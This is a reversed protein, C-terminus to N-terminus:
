FDNMKYGHTELHPHKKRSRQGALRGLSRGVISRLQPNIPSCFRNQFTSVRFVKFASSFLYDDYDSSALNPKMKIKAYDKILIEM